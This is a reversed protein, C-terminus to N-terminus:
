LIEIKLLLIKCKLTIDSRSIYTTAIHPHNVLFFILLTPRFCLFQKLRMNCTLYVKLSHFIIKFIAIYSYKEVKINHVCAHLSIVLTSTSFSDWAASKKYGSNLFLLRVFLIPQSGNVSFRLASIKFNIPLHTCFM